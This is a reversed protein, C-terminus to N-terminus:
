KFMLRRNSECFKDIVAETDIEIECHVHMLALGTLRDQGMVSRMYTKLRKLASFSREAEANSVPITALLKLLFAVNPLLMARAVGVNKVMDDSTETTASGRRFWRVLEARLVVEEDLDDSFEKAAKVIRDVSDSQQISPYFSKSSSHILNRTM